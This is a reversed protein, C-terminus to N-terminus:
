HPPCQLRLLHTRFVLQVIVNVKLSISFSFNYVGKVGVAWDAPDTSYASQMEAFPYSECIFSDGQYSVLYESPSDGTRSNQPILFVGENSNCRLGSQGLTTSGTLIADTLWYFYEIM